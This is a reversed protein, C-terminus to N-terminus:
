VVSKRDTLIITDPVPKQLEFTMSGKTGYVDYRITNKHGIAARTIHFSGMGGGAFRALFFCNDDTEVPAVASGDLTTREKVVIETMACLETINGALRQALDVLHVGLDGAVGSAALEKVFRWELRRGEWYASCKAYTANLGIVDGIVGQSMLYTAYRVAPMFRYTFCTMGFASSNKEAEIIKMAEDYNMAIPKELNVPKGAELAAIAMEAHLNNPTCVEIADVNEDAVLDKYDTYCAVDTGIKEKARALADPNIDCIATIVADECELMEHIHKGLGIGGCGIVGIRVKKM